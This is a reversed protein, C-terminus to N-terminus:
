IKQISIPNEISAPKNQPLPILRDLTYDMLFAGIPATLLISIVAVSLIINGSAIGMALPIGGIAAQVTAKPTYALITFLKDKSNLRTRVLSVLVGLSRVFLGFLILLIGFGLNDIFYRLNVTAGVMVFLIIEALLWLKSYKLSLRNALVKYKSSIVIGLTITALLGSYGIIGELLEELAVLGFCIGCIIIVKLTDRLHFKKFFWVLFLGIVIGSGIGLLISTPVSLYTMIGITGGAAITTLATFIVIVVIDDISSGAIILQPVGQQTGRNEDMMKVMRPVVVAPSVAGLVSGLIFADLYSIGFLTPGLLGVAVLEFIAPLFAMLVAPRGIRKLDSLDLTLGARILIFILAIKRLEASIGLIKADILNLIYPGLVIGVALYGILAPLHLKKCVYALILGLLLIICLSLLLM